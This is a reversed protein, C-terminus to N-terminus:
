LNLLEQLFASCLLYGMGRSKLQATCDRVLSAVDASSLRVKLRRSQTASRTLSTSRPSPDTLENPNQFLSAPPSASVDVWLSAKSPTDHLSSPNQQFHNSFSPSPLKLDLVPAVSPTVDAPLHSSAAHAHSSADPESSGKDPKRKRGSSPLKFVKLM